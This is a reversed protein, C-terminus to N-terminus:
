PLRTRKYIASARQEIERVFQRLHTLQKKSPNADLSKRLGRADDRIEGSLEVVPVSLFNESAGHVAEGLKRAKEDLLRTQEIVDAPLFDHAHNAAEFYLNRTLVLLRESDKQVKAHEGKLWERLFLPERKPPLSQARASPAMALAAVWVLLALLVVGARREGRAAM